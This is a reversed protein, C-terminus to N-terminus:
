LCACHMSLPASLRLCSQLSFIVDVGTGIIAAIIASPDNSVGGEVKASVTAKSEGLALVIPCVADVDMLCFLAVTAAMVLVDHLPTAPVAAVVSVLLVCIFTGEPLVKDMGILLSSSPLVLNGGNGAVVCVGVIAPVMGLVLVIFGLTPAAWMDAKVNDSSGRVDSDVGVFRVHEELRPSCLDVM